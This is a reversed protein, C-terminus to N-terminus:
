PDSVAFYLQHSAESGCTNSCTVRVHHAGAGGPTFRANLTRNDLPEFVGDRSGRIIEFRCAELRGAVRGGAFSASLDLSIPEGVVIRPALDSLVIEARVVPQPCERFEALLEVSAVPGSAAWLRAVGRFGVRTLDDEVCLSLTEAGGPAIRLPCSGEPCDEWFFEFADPGEDSEFEIGTLFGVGFGENLIEVPRCGESDFRLSAPRVRIRPPEPSEASGGCGWSGVWVAAHALAWALRMM